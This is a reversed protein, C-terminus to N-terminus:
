NNGVLAVFLNDVLNNYHIETFMIFTAFAAGSYWLLNIYISFRKFDSDGGAIRLHTSIVVNTKQEHVMAAYLCM